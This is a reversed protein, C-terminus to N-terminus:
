KLEAILDQNRKIYGFDGNPSDQAMKLSKQATDIAEKKKGMKALIQAKLHVNWFQQGNTGVALYKNVWELAQNLDKDYTFYFNAAAMYNAPNVQTKAAIDAMIQEEFSVVIPVKFSATSWAFHINATTNDESLDSIKFTLAEVPSTLTTAKVTTRMVENEKKFAAVNGGISLDGYLIFTWETAGPITLIMYKGAKVDQGGIKADTSLTLITGANAGTRWIEGYQQLYGDGSGFIKRGKVKPRSYDITVDTLGVKTYVSGAPSPAPINLQAHAFLGVFLAIFTLKLKKM